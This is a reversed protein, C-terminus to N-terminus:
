KTKQESREKDRRELWYLNREIKNVQELLKELTTVLIGMGSVRVGEKTILNEKKLLEIETEKGM